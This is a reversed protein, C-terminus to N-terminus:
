DERIEWIDFHHAIQQDKPPLKMYDGYLNKLYRDTDAPANYAKGEFMVKTPTGYGERKIYEQITYDGLWVFLVYGRAIRFICLTLLFYLVSSM